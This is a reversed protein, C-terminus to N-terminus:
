AHSAGHLHKAAEQFITAMRASFAQVSDPLFMERRFLRQMSCERYVPALLRCAEDNMPVTELVGMLERARHYCAEVQHRHEAEGIARWFESAVMSAIRAVGYGALEARTLSPHDHM